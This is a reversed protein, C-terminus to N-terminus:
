AGTSHNFFIAVHIRAGAAAAVAQGTGSRHAQVVLTRTTANYAGVQCVEFWNALSECQASVLFQADAPPTFDVPFVITYVGTASYTITSNTLPRPGREASTLPNSTGNPAFSFSVCRPEPGLGETPQVFLGNM